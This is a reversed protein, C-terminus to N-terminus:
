GPGLAIFSWGTAMAVPDAQTDARARCLAQAMSAGGRLQRHLAVMLPVVADDSVPGVSAVIASTGLPMLSCALGLLEDAGASGVLGSDCSSLVVRRPARQLRELDYVTLPGDDLRLASFLPSDLRFTGHAAIHALGAGDLADLVRAATATGNELVIPGGYLASLLPVEAGGSRLGPGRVLVVSDEGTRDARHARQWVAASPAVSVPRGSLDPLLAWPVAHMNGPPVIVVDGEGLHRRAGGLLTENLREGIRTLTAVIEDPTATSVGHALRTLWFRVIEVERVAEGSRGAPFRRIRGGGCVLAHLEGDVDVFEVLRDDGLDDMLSGTDLGARSPRSARGTRLARARVVRELRLQERHLAQAPLGRARATALRSVVDRMASLDAQLSEDDPPRVPPVALASARWRESWVLLRRSRGLRLAQRQGLAALEAGHATAQAQLESSGLVSRYEDLVDLGRGCAHWVRRADGATEARLAEALWGAARSMPLGHRRSAAAAALHDHAVTPRG